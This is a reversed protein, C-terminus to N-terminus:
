ADGGKREAHLQIVLDRIEQESKGAIRAQNLADCENQPTGSARPGIKVPDTWQGKKIDLYHASSSREGRIKLVRKTPIIKIEKM